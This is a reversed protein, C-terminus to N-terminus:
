AGATITALNQPVFGQQAAGPEKGILCGAVSSFSSLLPLNDRAVEALRLEQKRFQGWSVKRLLPRASHSIDTM